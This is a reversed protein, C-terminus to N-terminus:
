VGQVERDYHARFAVHDVKAFEKGSRLEGPVGKDVIWDKLIRVKKKDSDVGQLVKWYTVGLGAERACRKLKKLRFSAPDQITWEDM